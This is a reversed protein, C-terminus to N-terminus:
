LEWIRIKKDAAGIALWRGDPSFAIGNIVKTNVPFEAQLSLDGVSWLQVMSEMSIALTTEDASFALSRIGPIGPNVGCKEQWNTTDWFILTGEYGLSVLTSGNNIFTLSGVATKHGNLTRIPQGTPLEWLKIEDGLGSTALTRSDPSFAVSTLNNRSAKIAVLEKGSLSWIAARGGYSVAAIWKGDASIRVSAVVKKRDQLTHRIEGDPFSWLMVTQDSSGTALTKGDSSLSLSNVSKTHGGFSGLHEWNPLSWLKVINDMGCSVLTHSDQTFLLDIIYSTHAKFVIIEQM